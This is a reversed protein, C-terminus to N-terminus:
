QQIWLTEGGLTTSHCGKQSKQHRRTIFLRQLKLLVDRIFWDDVLKIMCLNMQSLDYVFYSLLSFIDMKLSKPEAMNFKIVERDM